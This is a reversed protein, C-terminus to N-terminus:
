REEERQHQAAAYAELARELDTVVADFSFRPGFQRWHAVVAQATRLLFDDPRDPDM